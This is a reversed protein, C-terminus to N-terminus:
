TYFIIRYQVGARINEQHILNAIYATIPFHAWIQPVFYTTAGRWEHLHVTWGNARWRESLPGDHPLLLHPQYCPEDKVLAEVLTLLSTEGGGLGVYTTIFLLNIPDTM